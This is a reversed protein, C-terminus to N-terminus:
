ILCNSLETRAPGIAFETLPRCIRLSFPMVYLNRSALSWRSRAKIGVIVASKFLQDKSVQQGARPKAYKCITYVSLYAQCPFQGAVQTSSNVPCYYNSM